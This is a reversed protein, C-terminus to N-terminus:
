VNLAVSALCSFPRLHSDKLQKKRREAQLDTIDCATSIFLQGGLKMVAGQPLHQGGGEVTTNKQLGEFVDTFAWFM